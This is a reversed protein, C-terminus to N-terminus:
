RKFVTTMKTGDVVISYYEYYGEPCYDNEAIYDYGTVIYDPDAKDMAIRNKEYDPLLLLSMAYTYSPYITIRERNDNALIYRLIDCVSTRWYDREFQSAIPKGIENFYLQQYPHNIYLWRMQMVMCLAILCVAAKQMVATIKGAGVELIFKLGYVALVIFPCMVFYM